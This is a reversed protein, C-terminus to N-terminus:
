CYPTVTLFARAAFRNGYHDRFPLLLRYVFISFIHLAVSVEAQILYQVYVLLAPLDPDNQSKISPTTQYLFSSELCGMGIIWLNAVGDSPPVLLKWDPTVAASFRNFNFTEHTLIYMRKLLLFTDKM